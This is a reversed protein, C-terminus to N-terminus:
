SVQVLLTYSAAETGLSVASWSLGSKTYVQYVKEEINESSGFETAHFFDLRISVRKFM